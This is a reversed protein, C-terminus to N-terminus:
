VCRSTYLLCLRLFTYPGIVVPKTKIGLAQAEAFEDFPKTGALRIECGDELEPVIYHYNTHFWKKMILAKVDGQGGQYGRAMAFYRQMETLNLAQYRQPVCNLRDRICM